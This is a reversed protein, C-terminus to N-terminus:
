LKHKQHHIGNLQEVVGVFWAKYEGKEAPSRIAQATILQVEENDKFFTARKAVPRNVHSKEFHTVLALFTKFKKYCEGCRLYVDAM